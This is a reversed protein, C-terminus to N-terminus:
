NGAAAPATTLVMQQQGAAAVKQYFGRLDQYEEPKAQSFARALSRAVIIQGPDAKSKATYVSHAAWLIKADQPAGEVTMGAPLHYTLQDTVLDGYHMDVPTQRNPENVFPLNGRTEFFYAPLILRKGAATGLTGKVKVIVMLNQDPQDMGLFHDVHAEVGAPVTAQLDREFRRTVEDMDNQLALQRWVLAQQGSMVIRIDGTISGDADVTIDGTRITTNATYAQDPTDTLGDGQPSQRIGQTGSHKWSVTQFPCMKQGPDLLIQKGGVSLIVLTDDLQDINMFSPDFIGEDRDVVKVAYATLGAARLMALYLM